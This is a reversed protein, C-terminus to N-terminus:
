PCMHEGCARIPVPSQGYGSLFAIVTLEKDQYGKLDDRGVTVGANVRIRPYLHGIREWARERLFEAYHLIDAALGAARISTAATGALKDRSQPNVAPTGNFRGPIECTAKTILVAVPNLDSGISRFGLRQTELVISGDGCFPDRIMPGHQQLYALDSDPREPLADERSRALSRAIERRARRLVNEDNSNEWIVLDRIISFLREREAQQESESPFLDPWSSPDDVSQAFLVARCTALPKRSWWLHLASPHGHRISKERTSAKNIAELPLSVEILKRRSTDM